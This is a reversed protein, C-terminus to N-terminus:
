LKIELKEKLITLEQELQMMDLERSIILDHFEELEKLKTKLEKELQRRKTINKIIIATGIQNEHNDKIEFTSFIGTLEAEDKRKYSNEGSCIRPNQNNLNKGCSHANLPHILNNISKDIAEEVSWGFMDVAGKNWSKIRDNLDISIITDSIQDILTKNYYLQEHIKKCGSIDNIISVFGILNGQEDYKYNWNVQIYIEKNDKTKNTEYYPSPEPQEKVLFKLYNRLKEKKTENEVNDFITKNILEGKDYGFIKHLGANAFIIKGYIDIEEIGQPINTIASYYNNDAM